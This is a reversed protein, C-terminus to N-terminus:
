LAEERIGYYSFEKLQQHTYMGVTVYQNYRLDIDLLINAPCIKRALSTAEDLQGKVILEVRIMLTYEKNKLELTYGDDGCLTTLQEELRRYSYPLQANLRALVRFARVNLNETGKPVIKLISEWRRIGNETATNVFQDKMVDDIASWLCALEPNEANSLVKFERVEKIIDPLYELTNPLRDAM